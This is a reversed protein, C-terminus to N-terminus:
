PPNGPVAAVTVTPVVVVPLAPVFALTVFPPVVLAATNLKVIGRPAVPAAPGFLTVLAVVLSPVAVNDSEVSV